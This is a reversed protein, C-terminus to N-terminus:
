ITSEKDHQRQINRITEERHQHMDDIRERSNSRLRKIKDIISMDINKPSTQSQNLAVVHSM